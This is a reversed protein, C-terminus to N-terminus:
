LFMNREQELVAAIKHKASYVRTAVTGPPIGKERAFEAETLGRVVVARYAEEERRSFGGRMRRAWTIIEDLRAEGRIPESHVAVDAPTAQGAGAEDHQEGLPLPPTGNPVLTKKRRRRLDCARSKARRWIWWRVDDDDRCRLGRRNCLAKKFGAVAQIVVDEKDEESYLNGFLFRKAAKEASSEMQRYCRRWEAEDGRRLLTLNM